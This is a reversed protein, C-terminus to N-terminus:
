APQPRRRLALMGFLAAGFLALSGPEPVKGTSCNVGTGGICVDGSVSALKLYDNGEDLASNKTGALPNYAGVLWYSSYISAGTGYTGTGLAGYSGIKVWSSGLSSWTLDKLTPAVSGTYALVSYDADNGTWGFTVSSLKTLKSFSLLVMENRQNNDIAHEPQSGSLDGYDCTGSASSCGDLNNIGLGGSYVRLNGTATQQQVSTTGDGSKTLTSGTNAWGTATVSTGGSSSVYAGSSVSVSTLSWSTAALAQGASLVLLAGILFKVKSKMTEGVITPVSALFCLKRWDFYANLKLCMFRM